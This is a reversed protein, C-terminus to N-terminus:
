DLFVSDPQPSWGDEQQIPWPPMKSGPYIAELVREAHPMTTSM